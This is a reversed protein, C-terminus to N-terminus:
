LYTSCEGCVRSSSTAALMLKGRSSLCGAVIFDSCGRSGFVSSELVEMRVGDLAGTSIVVSLSVASSSNLSPSAAYLFNLSRLDTLRLCLAAAFRRAFIGFSAFLGFGPSSIITPSTLGSFGIDRGLRGKRCYPSTDDSSSSISYM